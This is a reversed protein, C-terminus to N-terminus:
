NRITTFLCFLFKHFSPCCSPSFKAKSHCLLNLSMEQETVLKEVHGEAVGSLSERLEEDM